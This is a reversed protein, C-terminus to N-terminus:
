GFGIDVLVVFEVEFDALPVELLLAAVRESLLLNQEVQDVLLATLEDQAVHEGLDDLISLIGPEPVDPEIEMCFALVHLPLVEVLQDGM